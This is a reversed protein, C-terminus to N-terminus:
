RQGFDTQGFDTQGFDTQGFDTPYPHGFDTPYPHGFDSQGFDTEVLNGTGGDKGIRSHRCDSYRRELNVGHNICILFIGPLVKKGSQHLTSLDRASTPYYEDM